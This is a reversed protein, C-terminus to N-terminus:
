APRSRCGGNSARRRSGRGSRCRPAAGRDRGSEQRLRQLPQLVALLVPRRRLLLLAEDDGFPLLVHRLCRQLDEGDQLPEDDLLRQRRSRVATVEGPFPLAPWLRQSLEVEVGEESFAEPHVRRDLTLPEVPRGLLVDGVARGPEALIAPSPHLFRRGSPCLTITQRAGSQSSSGWEPLVGLMPAQTYRPRLPTAPGGARITFTATFTASTASTAPRFACGLVGM